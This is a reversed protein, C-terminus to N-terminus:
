RTSYRSALEFVQPGGLVLGNVVIRWQAEGFYIRGSTKQEKALV